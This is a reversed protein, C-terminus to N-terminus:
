KSAIYLSVAYAGISAAAGIAVGAIAENRVSKLAREAYAEGEAKRMEAAWKTGLGGSDRDAISGPLGYKYATNKYERLKEKENRATSVREKDYKMHINNIAEARRNFDTKYQKKAAKVDYRRNKELQRLQKRRGANTLSGDANEYRRVGWKMGLVGHHQIDNDSPIVYFTSM